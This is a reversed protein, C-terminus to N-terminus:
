KIKAVEALIEQPTKRGAMLEQMGPLLVNSHESKIMDIWLLSESNTQNMHDFVIEWTEGTMYDNAGVIPSPNNTAAVLRRQVEQSTFYDLFDLTAEKHKNAKPIMFIQGAGGSWLARPDDTFTIPEKFVGFNFDAPASAQIESVSYSGEPLVGVLGAVFAGIAGLRDVGLTEDPSILGKTVWDELVELTKVFPETTWLNSDEKTKLFLETGVTQPSVMGMFASLGYRDKAALLVPIVKNARLKQGQDVLDEFTTPESFGYDAYIDKNYFWEMTFAEAPLGYVRDPNRDSAVWRYSMPVFRDYWARKGFAETLDEILGQEIFEQFYFRTEIFLDPPDNSLFSTKILEHYGQSGTTLEIKVGPNQAMYENIVVQWDKARDFESFPTYFRITVEEALVPVAAILVGIFVLVGIISNWNRRKM